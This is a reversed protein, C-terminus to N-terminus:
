KRGRLRRNSMIWVTAVVVMGSLSVIAVTTWLNLNSEDGTSPTSRDNSNKTNSSSTSSKNNSSNKNSSTKSTSAATSTTKKTNTITWTNGSNSVSKTYGSPVSLENVTWDYSADLNNWTYKWGGASNLTVTSGYAKGNRYLQVSVSSPRDSSKDNKWVKNVTVSETKAPTTSPTTVKKGTFAPVGTYVIGDKEYSVAANLGEGQSVDIRVKYVTKDYAIASDSGAQMSITYNYSGEKEFSLPDFKVTGATNAKSQVITGAEDKLLLTFTNNAPAQGDLTLEAGLTVQAPEPAPAPPEAEYTTAFDLHIVAGQDGKLSFSQAAGSTFGATEGSLLPELRYSQEDDFLTFALTGTSDNMSYTALPQSGAPAGEAYLAFSLSPTKVDTLPEGAADLWRHNVKVSVASQQLESTAVLNTMTKGDATKVASADYLDLAFNAPAPNKKAADLLANVFSAAAGTAPKSDTVTWIAQQTVAINNLQTVTAAPLGSTTGLKAFDQSVGKWTGAFYPYGNYIINLVDQKVSAASQAKDVLAPWNQTGSAAQKVYGSAGKADPVPRSQNLAYALVGADSGDKVRLVKMGDVSGAASGLAPTNDYATYSASGSPAALSAAQPLLLSGCFLLLTLLATWKRKM